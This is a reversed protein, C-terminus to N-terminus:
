DLLLKVAGRSMDEYLRHGEGGSQLRMHLWGHEIVATETVGEATSRTAYGHTIEVTRDDIRRSSVVQTEEVPAPDTIVRHHHFFVPVDAHAATLGRPGTEDGNSGTLIVWSLPLCPDFHHEKLQFYFWTDGTDTPLADLDGISTPFTRFNDYLGTDGLTADPRDCDSVDTEPTEAEATVTTTVTAISGDGNSGGDAGGGAGDGACAALPLVLLVPLLRTRM